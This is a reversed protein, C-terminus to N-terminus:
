GEVQRSVCVIMNYGEYRDLIQALLEGCAFENNDEAIEILDDGEVLRLAFPLVDESKTKQGIYDLIQVANDVSYITSAHGTYIVKRNPNTNTNLNPNTIPNSHLNPDLVVV